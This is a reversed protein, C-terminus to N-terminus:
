WAQDCQIQIWVPLHRVVTPREVVKYDIFMLNLEKTVASFPMLEISFLFNHYYGCDDSYPESHSVSYKIDLSRALTLVDTVITQYM